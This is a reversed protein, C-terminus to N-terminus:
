KEMSSTEANKGGEVLSFAWQGRRLGGCLILHIIIIVPEPPKWCKYVIMFIDAECSLAWKEFVGSRDLDLNLIWYLGYITSFRPPGSNVNDKQFFLIIFLCIIRYIIIYCTNRENAFMSPFPPFGWLGWLTTELCIPYVYIQTSAQTKQCAQQGQLQVLLILASVM